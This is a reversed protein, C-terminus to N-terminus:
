DFMGFDITIYVFHICWAIITWLVIVILLDFLYGDHLLVSCLFSVHRLFEMDQTPISVLV